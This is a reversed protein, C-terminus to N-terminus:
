GDAPKPPSTSRVVLTGAAIDGVRQRLPSFFVMALPLWVLILDVVRLVNRILLAARPPTGGAVNVIQLGFIWKGFTRRFLLEAAITYVLYIGSGIYFPIMQDNTPMDDTVGAVTMQRATFLISILVPLADIVGAAFRPLLPALTLNAEVLSAPLEGIGGRRAAGFLLMTIVVTLTPALWNELESDPGVLDVVLEARKGMPSGDSGYAQEYLHDGSASYLRIAEAARTASRPDNTAAGDSSLPREGAVDALMGPGADTLWITPPLGANLIDFNGIPSTSNFERPASWHDDQVTWVRIGNGGNSTALVPQHDIVALSFASPDINGADVPLAMVRSWQNQDFKYIAPTRPWMAPQTASVPATTNAVNAEPSKAAATPETTIPNIMPAPVGAAWLSDHDAALAILRVDPAPPGFAQGDAWITLWDGSDLLVKADEDCAAISIVRGSLTALKRWRTEKSLRRTLILTHDTPPQPDTKDPDNKDPPQVRAVVVAEDSSTALLDRPSAGAPSALAVFFAFILLLVLKQMM